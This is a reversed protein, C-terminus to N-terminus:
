QTLSAGPGAGNFWFTGQPFKAQVMGSLYEVVFGKEGAEFFRCNRRLKPTNENTVKLTDGVDVCGIAHGVVQAPQQLLCCDARVPTSLLLLTVSFAEKM